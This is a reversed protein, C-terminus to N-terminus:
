QKKILKITTNATETYLNVFYVGAELKSVNITELNNVATLVKQGAINLVEISKLNNELGKITVVDTAPNPFISVGVLEANPTSLTNFMISSPATVAAANPDVVNVFQAMGNDIMDAQMFSKLPTITNALTSNNELIKMEGSAPTGNVTFTYVISNTGASPAVLTAPSGLTETVLYGDITPQAVNTGDFFTPSAAGGLSTASGTDITVGDPVIITFGYSQVSTAFNNASMNPVAAVSFSLGGNDVLTYTYGDQAHLQGSFFCLMLIFLTPLTIKNM